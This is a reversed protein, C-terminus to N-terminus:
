PKQGIVGVLRWYAHISRNQADRRVQALLVELEDCSWRLIKTFLAVSFGEIGQLLNTMEWMGLEKLTPDKPWQNLPLPVIYEKVNVFGAEEMWQRYRWPKDLATGILAAAKM